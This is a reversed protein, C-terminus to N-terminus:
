PTGCRERSKGCKRDMMQEHRWLADGSTNDATVFDRSTAHLSYGPGGRDVEGGSSSTHTSDSHRAKHHKASTHAKHHTTSHAPKAHTSDMTAPQQAGAYSAVAAVAFLSLLHRNM